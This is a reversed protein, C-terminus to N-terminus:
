HSTKTRPYEETVFSSYLPVVTSRNTTCQYILSIFMFLTFILMSSHFCCSSHFRSHSHFILMSHFSSLLTSLFSSASSTFSYIPHNILKSFCYLDGSPGLTYGRDLNSTNTKERIYLSELVKRKIHHHEVM